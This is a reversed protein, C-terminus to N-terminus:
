AVHYVVGERCGCLRKEQMVTCYRKRARADVVDVGDPELKVGGMEEVPVVGRERRLRAGKELRYRKGERMAREYRGWVKEHRYQEITQNAVSPM